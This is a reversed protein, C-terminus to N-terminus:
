SDGAVSAAVCAAQPLIVAAMHLEDSSVDCASLQRGWWTGGLAAEPVHLVACLAQRPLPLVQALQDAAGSADAACAAVEAELHAAYRAAESLRAAM